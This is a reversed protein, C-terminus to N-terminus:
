NIDANVYMYNSHFLKMEKNVAMYACPTRTWANLRLSYPLLAVFPMKFSMEGM